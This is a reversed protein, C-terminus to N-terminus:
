NVAEVNDDNKRPRKLNAEHRAKCIRGWGTLKERQGTKRDYEGAEKLSMQDNKEANVNSM